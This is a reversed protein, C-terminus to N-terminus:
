NRNLIFLYTNSINKSFKIWKIDFINLVTPIEKVVMLANEFPIYISNSKIEYKSLIQIIKKINYDGAQYNTSLKYDSVNIDQMLAFNLLEDVTQYNRFNLSHVKFDKIIKLHQYAYLLKIREIFSNTPIHKIEESIPLTRIELYLLNTDGVIKNISEVKYKQKLFIIQRKIDNIKVSDKKKVLFSTSKNALITSNDDFPHYNVSTDYYIINKWINSFRTKEKLTTNIKIHHQLFFLSKNDIVVLICTQEHYLRIFELVSSKGAGNEGVIATVNTIKGKQIEKNDKENEINFFDEYFDRKKKRDEEKINDTLTGGIVKEKKTDNKDFTPEFHFDYLPSFNFGQQKINKYDEIWLYLLEMTSKQTFFYHKLISFLICFVM